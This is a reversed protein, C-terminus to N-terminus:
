EPLGDLESGHGTVLCNGTSYCQVKRGAEVVFWSDIRRLTKAPMALELIVARATGTDDQIYITCDRAAVATNEITITRIITTRGPPTTYLDKFM